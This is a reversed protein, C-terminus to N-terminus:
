ESFIELEEVWYDVLKLIKKEKKIYGRAPLEFAVKDDIIHIHKYGWLGKVLNDIEAFNEDPSECFTKLDYGSITLGKKFIKQVILLHGELLINIGDAHLSNLVPDSNLIDCYKQLSKNAPETIGYRLDKRDSKKLPFSRTLEEFRLEFEHKKNRYQNSLLKLQKKYSQKM